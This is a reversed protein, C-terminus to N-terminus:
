KNDDDLKRKDGEIRVQIKADEFGYCIIVTGTTQNELYKIIKKQSKSLVKVKM